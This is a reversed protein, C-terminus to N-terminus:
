NLIVWVFAVVSRVSLWASAPQGFRPADAAAAFFFFFFGLVRCSHPSPEPAKRVRPWYLAAVTRPVLHSTWSEHAPVSVLTGRPTTATRSLTRWLVIM